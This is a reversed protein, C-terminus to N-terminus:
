ASVSLRPISLRPRILITAVPKLLPRSSVLLEMAFFCDSASGSTSASESTRSSVPSGFSLYVWPTAGLSLHAVGSADSLPMWYSRLKQLLGYGFVKTNPAPSNKTAHLKLLREITRLQCSPRKSFSCAVTEARFPRGIDAWPLARPIEGLGLGQFPSRIDPNRAYDPM